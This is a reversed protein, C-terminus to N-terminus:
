QRGQPGPTVRPMPQGTQPGGSETGTEAPGPSAGTETGAPLGRQALLDMARGIPIRVAGAQQDAWGYTSLVADEHARLRWLDLPPNAQIRPAPPLQSAQPEPFPGESARMWALVRWLGWMLALVLVLSGLLSILFIVVGRSNVDTQEFLGASDQRKM